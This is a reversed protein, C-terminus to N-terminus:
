GARSRRTRQARKLARRATRVERRLRTNSRSLSRTRELADDLEVSVRDFATSSRDLLDAREVSVIKARKLQTRAQAPIESSPAAALAGIAVGVGVLLAVALVRVAVLRPRERLGAM